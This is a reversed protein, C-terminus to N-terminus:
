IIGSGVPNTAYIASLIELYNNDLQESLQSARTINQEMDAAPSADRFAFALINDLEDVRLCLTQQAFVQRLNKYYRTFDQESDIILNYGVGGQNNLKSYIQQMSHTQLLWPPLKNGIFLDVLILDFQQKCNDLYHLADDIVYTLKQDAPPLGMRQQMLDLMEGDIDVATIHSEPYYHRFFHILGGAATGLMCISKPPPMFLLIGTLYALNKLVLQAPSKRM